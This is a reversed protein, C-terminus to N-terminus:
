KRLRFKSDLKECIKARLSLAIEKTIPHTSSLMEIRFTVSGEKTVPHQYHGLVKVNVNFETNATLLLLEEHLRNEEDVDAIWFSLDFVRRWERSPRTSLIQAAAIDSVDLVDLKEFARIEGSRKVLSSEQVPINLLKASRVEPAKAFIIRNFATVESSISRETLEYDLACLCDKRYKDISEHQSAVNEFVLGSLEALASLSDKQRRLSHCCPMIAVSSDSRIAAMLVLDSLSGCAHTAVFLTGKGNAARVSSISGEVYLVAGELQPWKRLIASSLSNASPPRTIDVAVATRALPEEASRAILVLIWSLLGHGAAIDAIHSAEPFEQHVLEAMQWCEHLEKEPLIGTECVVSALERFLWPEFSAFREADKPKLKRRSNLM